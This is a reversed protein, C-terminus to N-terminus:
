TVGQLMKTVAIYIYSIKYWTAFDVIGTVPLEFVQQFTKISDSTNTKFQGDAPIIKPIGPYSGNITNIMIQIKQVPEGCSGIALNYGPFSTPLGEIQEAKELTLNNVYYYKLIQLANYGKDALDKSGWQSLWGPNNVDVGDNYQALFPFNKGPLKIYYNFIQDVVDSITKFITRNHVYAQDYKPSSTITFNYGQSKYWETFIRNLTFSVIAYINAKISEVPWTSYIEGSTVNKIYDTFPVYYNAANTDTPIGDHVIIYEPILVRPLVRTENAKESNNNQINEEPYRWLSHPPLDIVKPVAAKLLTSPLYVNQISTEEPLVQVGNVITTQFGPKSVELNYVSYPRVEKQPSLSYIKLPADLEILPTKGNIDTTFIEKYNDGTVIVTADSVPQAVNDAYVNVILYGKEM